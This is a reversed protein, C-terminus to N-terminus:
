RMAQGQEAAAQVWPHLDAQEASGMQCPRRVAAVAVQEAVVGGAVLRTRAPPADCRTVRRIVQCGTLAHCYIGLVPHHMEGTTCWRV